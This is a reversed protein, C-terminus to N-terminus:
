FVYMEENDEDEDEDPKWVPVSVDSHPKDYVAPRPNLSYLSRCVAKFECSGCTKYPIKDPIFFLFSVASDFIRIGEDLADLSSQYAERSCPKRQGPLEGMVPIVKHKNISVFFARATKEGTEIGSAAPKQISAAPKPISAASEYLKIYMPIQFDRLGPVTDKEKRCHKQSPTINTKYDIIMPGEPSRSVRDIRGTLRLHGQSLDFRQELEQVEYGSFFAAETKLLARLRRSMAAALPVILPYVLPGRLTDDSRLVANSLEEIWEFYRSLHKSYFRKDQEKIRTFLRRLIEHYILGRSEDDLLAADELYPELHFIRRYLWFRPCKFFENLDTASVSLVPPAIAAAPSDTDKTNKNRIRDQLLKAVSASFQSSVPPTKAPNVSDATQAPCSDDLLFSSWREFGIRQVEYLQQPKEALGGRWRREATFLDETIGAPTEQRDLHMAFTSHPIAWGTFTKESASIRTHCTYEKWSSINYLALMAASVDRDELGLGQRKDQRLFPLPRHQVAAANQSVNLLLHCAFPTGAAVPYDYINVGGDEQAYVYNKDKLHSVYFAFPNAAALGPFAAETEVLVSLEEICRALVADSEPSCQKMDLFGRFVYYQEKLERFSKASSLAVISQKLEQYYSELEANPSRKFSEEWPDLTRGRDMFPSVCHNDVGYMILDRNKASDKWPIGANLLLPKLADFAFFAGACEGILSFLRGLPYEALTKGSRCKFPIDHLALERTFYPEVQKYGPLTVAMDEYPLGLEEHLRRLELVATKIEQRASDFFLLRPNQFPHRPNQFPHRPNQFPHEAPAGPKDRARVFEETLYLTVAPSDLLERYEAFDALAEPFFIIYHCNNDRFPTEEWAPEFLGQEELFSTYKSKIIRLDRDEDDDRSKGKNISSDQLTEWLGLASLMKAISEAFVQGGAAFDAPIIVLLQPSAANERVLAHAFLKRVLSSVPTKNKEKVRIAAEKFRDWALFRDPAVSREGYLCIKRAWGLASTESPFVFCTNPDKIKNLITEFVSAM